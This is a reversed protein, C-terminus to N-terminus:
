NSPLVSSPSFHWLVGAIAYPHKNALVYVCSTHTLPAVSTFFHRLCGIGRKAAVRLPARRFAASASISLASRKSDRSFKPTTQLDLVESDGSCPM